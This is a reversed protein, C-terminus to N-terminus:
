LGSANQQNQQSQIVVRFMKAHETMTDSGDHDRCLQLHLDAGVSYSGSPTVTGSLGTAHVDGDNNALLTDNLEVASGLAADIANDNNEWKASLEWEVTDGASAGTDGTWKVLYKLSTSSWGPEWFISCEVCETTAGSFSYHGKSIGNTAWASSEHTAHDGASIEWLGAPIDRYVYQYVAALGAPTVARAADSGTATEASTALEVLGEAVTTADPGSISTTVTFDTVTAAAPTDTGMAPPAAFIDPLNSPVLCKDTATAAAAEADTAIEIAGTSSTTAGQKINGYATAANDVDSLNDAENLYRADDITTPSYTATGGSRTLTGDPFQLKYAAGAPDGDSEEVYIGMREAQAQGSFAIFIAVFLCIKFIKRTRM